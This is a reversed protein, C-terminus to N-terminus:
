YRPVSGDIRLSWLDIGGRVSFARPVGQHRLYHAVRLSRVGHHCLLLVPLAPDLARLAEVRAPIEGMPIHEAGDLACLELEGAERVDILVHPEGGKRLAHLAEVTLEM